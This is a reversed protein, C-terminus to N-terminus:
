RQLSATGSCGMRLLEGPRLCLVHQGRAPKGLSKVKPLVADLLKQSWASVFGEQKWDVLLVIFNGSACAM